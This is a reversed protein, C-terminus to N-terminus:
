VRSGNPGEFSSRQLIDHVMEGRFGSMRVKDLATSAANSPKRAHQLAPLCLCQSGSAGLLQPRSFKYKSCSLKKNDRINPVDIFTAAPPESNSEIRAILTRVVHLQRSQIFVVYSSIAEAQQVTYM